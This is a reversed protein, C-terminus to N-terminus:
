DPLSIEPILHGSSFNAVGETPLSSQVALSYEVPKPCSMEEIGLSEGPAITFAFLGAPAQGDSDAVQIALSHKGATGSAPVGSIIGSSPELNL